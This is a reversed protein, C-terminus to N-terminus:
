EEKTSQCMIVIGKFSKLSLIINNIDDKTCILDITDYDGHSYITISAKEPTSYKVDHIIVVHNVSICDDDSTSLNDLRKIIKEFFSIFLDIVRNPDNFVEKREDDNDPMYIVKNSISISYRRYDVMFNLDINCIRKVDCYNRFYDTETGIRTTLNVIIKSM